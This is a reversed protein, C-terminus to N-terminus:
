LPVRVFLLQIIQVRDYGGARRPQNVPHLMAPCVFIERWEM